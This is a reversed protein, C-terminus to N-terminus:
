GGILKAIDSLFLKLGELTSKLTEVNFNKMLMSVFDGAKSADFTRFYNVVATLIGNITQILEEM